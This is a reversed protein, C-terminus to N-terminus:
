GYIGLNLAKKYKTDYKHYNESSNLIAKNYSYGSKKILLATQIPSPISFIQNNIKLLTSNASDVKPTPNQLTQNNQKSNNCGTVLLGAIIIVGIGKLMFSQK